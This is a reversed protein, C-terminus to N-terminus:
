QSQCDERDGPLRRHVAVHIQVFTRQGPAPYHRGAQKGDETNGTAAARAAVGACATRVASAPGASRAGAPGARTARATRARTCRRRRAVNQRIVVVEGTGSLVKRLRRQRGGVNVRGSKALNREERCVALDVSLREVDAIEGNAARRVVDDVDHGLVGADVCEVGVGVCLQPLAGQKAGALRRAVITVATLDCRFDADRRCRNDVARAARRADQVRDCHTFIRASANM